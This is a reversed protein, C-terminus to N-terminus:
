GVFTGNTPAGDFPDFSRASPSGTSDLASFNYFTGPFNGTPGGNGTLLDAKGNGDLDRLLVRVGDRLADFGAFFDRLNAVEDLSATGTTILRTDHIRVRPGGGPGAGFAMEVRGDGTVDGASLYVGNRLTNEFAFFNALQLPGGNLVSKGEWFTVRPGGGFGAAIAFDTDGDGDLDAVAPRAGGRFNPDDIGFFRTV